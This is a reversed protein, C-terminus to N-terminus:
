CDLTLNLDLTGASEVKVVPFLLLLPRRLKRPLGAVPSLLHPAVSPRRRACVPCLLPHLGLHLACAELSVVVIIPLPARASLAPLLAPPLALLHSPLPSQLSTSTGEPSLLSAQSRRSSLAAAAPDPAHAGECHFLLLLRHLLSYLLPRAPLM